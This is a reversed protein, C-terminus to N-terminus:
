KEREVDGPYVNCCGGSAWRVMPGCGDGYANTHEFVLGVTGRKVNAGQPDLDRLAVVRTGREMVWVKEPDPLAQLRALARKWKKPMRM